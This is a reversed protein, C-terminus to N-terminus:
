NFVIRPPGNHNTVIHQLCCLFQNLDGADITRLSFSVDSFVDFLEDSLNRIEFAMGLLHDCPLQLVIREM